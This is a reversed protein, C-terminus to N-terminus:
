KGGEITATGREVLVDVYEGESGGQLFIGVTAHTGAKSPVVLSGSGDDMIAAPKGAFVPGGALAKCIGNLVIGVAEGKAKAENAEWAYLGIFDGGDKGPAVVANDANGQVVATGPKIGSGAVYARRETM